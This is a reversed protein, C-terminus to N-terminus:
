KDLHVNLHPYTMEIHKADFVEKIKENVAFMTPLYDECKCWLNLAYEISSEGYNKVGAFPAPDQMATPVVAAEKLAALVDKVAAEYSATVTIDVRRTGLATYNVIQAANVASNPISIIKNDPTLLKTYTLDIEKVVGTQGAIEVMDGSKFPKTYLLSFGSIVNSLVNQLSLSVALTLVSALAVTGTMDIGLATAVILILLLYLVVKIVAQILKHAAKELKSKELAKQVLNMIMRIVLLGAVLYIVAPLIRYTAGGILGSLWAGFDNFM